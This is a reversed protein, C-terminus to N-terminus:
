RHLDALGRRRRWEAFGHTSIPRLSPARLASGFHHRAPSHHRRTLRECCLDAQLYQALAAVRDIRRHCGGRRQAHSLRHLNSECAVHERDDVACAVLLQMNQIGASSRRGPGREFAHVGQTIACIWRLRSRHRAHRVPADRRDRNGASGPAPLFHQLALPRARERLHKRRRNLQRPGSKGHALADRVVPLNRIGKARIWCSWFTAAGLRIRHAHPGPQDVALRRSGTLDEPIRIERMRQVQEPLSAAIHKVFTLDRLRDNRLRSSGAARHRHSVQRLISAFPDLRRADVILAVVDELCRRRRM